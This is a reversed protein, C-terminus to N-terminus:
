SKKNQIYLVLKHLINKLSSFTKYIDDYVLQPKKFRVEDKCPHVNVDYEKPSINYYVIFSPLMDSAYFDRYAQKIAQYITKDRVIRKNVFIFKNNSQIGQKNETLYIKANASNLEHLDDSKFIFKIRNLLSDKKYYFSLKNHNFFRFSIHPHCLAFSKITRQILNLETSRSKLFKRRVPINFFLDKVLISTGKNHACPMIKHEDLFNSQLHWANENHRSLLNFRSISAISALAEGRFGYSTLYSLDNIQKIKSTAHNTISMILDDYEIGIGDDVIKIFNIGADEIYIDINNSKADISNELLEKIVSAPRAIVEGAAIQNTVITSLLNIKTM